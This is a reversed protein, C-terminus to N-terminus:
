YGTCFQFHMPDNALQRFGYKAFIQALQQQEPTQTLNPYPDKNDGKYRPNETYNLDIAIGWAHTSPNGDKRKKTDRYGTGVEEILHTLGREEIEAFIAEFNEQLDKHVKITKTQGEDGYPVQIDVMNKVNGPEGFQKKIESVGHPRDPFGGAKNQTEEYQDVAVRRVVGDKGVVDRGKQGIPQPLAADKSVGISKASADSGGSSKTTSAAASDASATAKSAGSTESKESTKSTSDSSKTKGSSSSKGSSKSKGSSSSKGSSKSSGSSGSSSIPQSTFSNNSSPQSQTSSSQQGGFGQEQQQQLMQMLMMLQMYAQTGDISGGFMSGLSNLLSEFGPVMGMGSSLGVSSPDKSLMDTLANKLAQENQVGSLQLSDNVNIPIGMGSNLNMGSNAQGVGNMNLMNPTINLSM